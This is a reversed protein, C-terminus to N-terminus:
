GVGGAGLKRPPMNTFIWGSGATSIAQNNVSNPGAYWTNTSPTAISHQINLYDCNVVGLPSKVLNFANVTNASNLTILNGPSGNVVFNGITQTTGQQFLLSHAATGADIFNFFSNSGLISCGGTSGARNWQLTYYSQSGGIFNTSIASTNTINIISPGSDFTLNTAVLNWVTGTGTLTWTGRGMTM